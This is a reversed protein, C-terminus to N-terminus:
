GAACQRRLGLRVVLNRPNRPLARHIQNQQLAMECRGARAIAARGRHAHLACFGRRHGAGRVGGPGHADHHAPQGGCLRQREARYRHACHALGIPGYFFAGRVHHTRAYLRCVPTALHQADRGPGDLQQDPRRRGEKRQLYLHPRRRPGRRQPRVLGFLQEPAQGPQAQHLHRRRGPTPM